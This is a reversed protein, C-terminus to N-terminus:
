RQMYLLLNFWATFIAISGAEWQFHYSINVGMLFPVAFVITSPYLVLQVYVQFNKFYSVKKFALTGCILNGEFHAANVTTKGVEISLQVFEKIIILISFLICIGSLLIYIYNEKFMQYHTAERLIDDTCSTMNPWFPDPEPGDGHGGRHICSPHTIVILTLTFLFFLYFLTSLAYLPLGYRNWKRELLQECLPHSLCDSRGFEVM